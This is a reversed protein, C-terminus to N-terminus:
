ERHRAIFEPPVWITHHRGSRADEPFDLVASGDEWATLQVPKGVIAAIARRDEDPLDDFLGPPVAVLVVKDGVNPKDLDDPM